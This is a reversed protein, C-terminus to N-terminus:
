ECVGPSTKSLKAANHPVMISRVYRLGDSARRDRGVGVYFPYGDVKDQYVFFECKNPNTPSPM